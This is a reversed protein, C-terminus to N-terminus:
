SIFIGVAGVGLLVSPLKKGYPAAIWAYGSYGFGTYSTVGTDEPVFIASKLKM